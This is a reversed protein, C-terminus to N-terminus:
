KQCSKCINPLKQCGPFKKADRSLNQSSKGVNALMQLSKSVKPLKRSSKANNAFIQYSKIIKSLFHCNIVIQLLSKLVIIMDGHGETMM